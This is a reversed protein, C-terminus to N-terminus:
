VLVYQMLEIYVEYLNKGTLDMYVDAHYNDMASESVHNSGPNAKDDRNLKIIIFGKDRLLDAENPFRCDDVVVPATTGDIRSEFRKLWYDPVGMFQRWFDTGYWQLLPRFVPDKFNEITTRNLAFSGSNRILAPNASLEKHIDTTHATHDIIFNLMDVVDDKVGDAFSLRAYRGGIELLNACTTKGVGMPGFFAVDKYEPM